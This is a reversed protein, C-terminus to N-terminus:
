IRVPKYKKALEVCEKFFAERKKYEEDSPKLSDIRKKETLFNVADKGRLTPTPEIPRAMKTYYKPFVHIYRGIFLRM